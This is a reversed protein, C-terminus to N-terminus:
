ATKEGRAAAKAVLASAEDLSRARLLERRLSRLSRPDRPLDVNTLLQVGRKGFRAELVAEVAEELGTALGEKHGQKHGLKHGKRIGIREISTVYPMTRRREYESIWAEFREDLEPPLRVLWDLFKFLHMIDRRRYGREYLLRTLDQKVSFRKRADKGAEQRRLHALVLLAFPNRSRLLEQERGRYLTIKVATFQFLKRNGWHRYDYPKVRYRAGAHTLVVLSVVEEGYRKFIWENYSFVRRPFGPGAHGEIEVHILIWARGGTRLRVRVLKDLYQRGKPAGRLIAQLEKDLFIPKHSWDIDRHVRPFFFQLFEEFYRDLVDKWVSDDPM